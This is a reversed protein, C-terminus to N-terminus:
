HNKKKNEKKDKGGNSYICITHRVHSFQMFWGFFVLPCKITGM